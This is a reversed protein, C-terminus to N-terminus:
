AQDEAPTPVPEADLAAAVGETTMPEAPPQDAPDIGLWTTRCELILAGIKVPRGTWPHDVTRDLMGVANGEQWCERLGPNDNGAKTVAVIRAVLHEVQADTVVPRDEAPAAARDAERNRVEQSSSIGKRADAAQVAMIARGWASTEANQLESDRTYPTKGPFPEWAMGIGPRTDEATRYAAAVVVIYTEPKGTQPNAVTEVTYPKALDAPQVTGEPHKTRFEVMRAAVDVYDDMNFGGGGGGGGSQRNNRGSM